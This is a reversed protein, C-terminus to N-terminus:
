PNQSPNNFTPNPGRTKGLFGSVPGNPRPGNTEQASMYDDVVISDGNKGVVKYQHRDYDKYSSQQFYQPDDPTILEM